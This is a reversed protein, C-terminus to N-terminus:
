VSALAAGHAGAIYGLVLGRTLGHFCFVGVSEGGAYLSPIVNGWMDIVQANRNVRLGGYSDHQRLSTWGAYFPPTEIKASLREAPKAFDLDVGTDVFGNYRAVTAELNAAPMPVTSRPCNIIQGALEAITNASFFYEPDTDPYTVNWERREVAGADFIAWNPGASYDPATSGENRALAADIYSRREYVQRMWETSSNRWDNAVYPDRQTTGVLGTHTQSAYGGIGEDYYRNGMQNVAIVHEWGAGGINIGSAGAFPFVPSTPEWIGRYLSGVSSAKSYLTPREYALATGWLTAGIVQAAIIGSADAEGFPGNRAVVQDTLRPDFQRRFDVNNNFGGSAIIVAKKAKINVNPRTENINGESRLSEMRTNTGPPIWPTYSARVGLVRGSTPNERFISDVHRNLMFEVGKTRASAELPRLFASGQSGRPSFAGHIESGEIVSYRTRTASLGTSMTRNFLEGPTWGNALLFNYSNVSNDAYARIVDTDNYKYDAVGHTMLISWDMLDQFVSDPSDVIGAAVQDSTGGGLDVQGASVLARGGVEWNTEVVIVSAGADRARIASPMGMAGSGIVVVDAEYDWTIEQGPTVTVTVPPPTVTTTTGPPTVTETTTVTVNEGGCSLLYLSAASLGGVGAVKLFQRRTTAKGLGKGGNKANKKKSM